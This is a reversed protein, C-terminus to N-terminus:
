KKAANQNYKGMNGIFQQVATFERGATPTTRGVLKIDKAKKPDLDAIEEVTDNNKPDFKVRVLRRKQVEPAFIGKQSTTEGIYYWVNTDFSSVTTPPGWYQVVDARTSKKPQVQVFKTDSLLNGRTTVTPTCAGLALTAAIVIEIPLKKM